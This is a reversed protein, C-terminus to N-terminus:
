KKGKSGKKGKKKSPRRWVLFALVILIIVLIWLMTNTLAYPNDGYYITVSKVTGGDQFTVFESDPDIVMKITNAGTALTPQTWNYSVTVTAGANINVTTNYITDNGIQGHDLYFYVPVGLISVNGTNKISASLIVPQVVNVNIQQTQTQNATTNSSTATVIIQINSAVSPATFTLNFTGNRTPGGTGPTLKALVTNTGGLTASYRYTGNGSEAPGGYITVKYVKVESVAVTTPGDITVTMPVDDARAQTAVFAPLLLM